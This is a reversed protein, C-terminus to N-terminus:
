SRLVETRRQGSVVAGVIGLVVAGLVAAAAVAASPLDTVAQMAGGSLAGSLAGLDLADAIVLGVGTGVGIGAAAAVVSVPIVDSATLVASQRTTLGMTRLVSLGYARVREGIALSMVAAAAALVASVVTVIMFVDLVANLVSDGYISELVDARLSVDDTAIGLTSAVSEAAVEGSIYMVDPWPQAADAVPALPMVLTTGSTSGPVDAFMAVVEVVATTDKNLTVELQDGVDVVDVRGKLVAAPAGSETPGSLAALADPRRPASATVEQWAPVDVALVDLGTARGNDLNIPRQFPFVTGTAIADAGPISTIQEQDVRIADATVVADAAVANWSSTHRADDVSARVTGGFTAVGIAVLLAIVPLVAHAPARAARTVALFATLTDTRRLVPMLAALLYPMARFIVLGTAGAVVIPVLSVVPDVGAGPQRTGALWLGLGAVVVAAAEGVLRRASPRLAAVDAREDAAAPAGRAARITMVPVALVAVVAPVATLLTGLGSWGGPVVLVAALAGVLTAPVSLVLADLVLLRAVAVSTAGRTRALLAEDRRREALFRASLLTLTVCLAAMSIMGFGVVGEAASRQAPYRELTDVLGSSWMTATSLRRLEAVVAEVESNDARAPDIAVHWETDVTDATATLWPQLVDRRGILAGTTIRPEAGPAGLDPELAVRADSWFPDGPDTPEILGTLRVAPTRASENPDVAQIGAPERREFSVVDGIELRLAEAVPRTAVVDIISADATNDVSAPLDGDVVEVLRDLADPVRVELRRPRLGDDVVSDNLTGFSRAGTSVSWRGAGLLDGLEPAVSERLDEIESDFRAPIVDSTERASVQATDGSGAITEQLTHDLRDDIWRPGAAGLFAGVGVVLALVIAATRHTLLGRKLLTWISM